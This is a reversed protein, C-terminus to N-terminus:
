SSKPSPTEIWSDWDFDGATSKNDSAPTTPQGAFAQAAQKFYDQALQAIEQATANPYKQQLQAQVSAVVPAVAPNKFAPNASILAEQATQNKVFSPIRSAFEGKAEEVAREVLKQSVVISQGYVQQATKNLLDALAATAEEGGAQIKALSQPDLVKRFDVKAAAELMKEPTLGQSQEGPKPEETKIPDWLTNFKDAPSQDGPKQGDAPIVGNPATGASSAPAPPAPNQAPNNTPAAPAPAAAPPTFINTFWNM